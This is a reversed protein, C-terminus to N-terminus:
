RPDGHVIRLEVLGGLTRADSPVLASQRISRRSFGVEAAGAQGGRRRQAVRQGRGRSRTRSPKPPKHPKHARIVRRLSSHGPLYPNMPRRYRPSSSHKDSPWPPTVAPSRGHSCMQRASQGSRPQHSRVFHRFLQFSADKLPSESMCLMDPAALEDLPSGSRQPPRLRRDPAHLAFTAM